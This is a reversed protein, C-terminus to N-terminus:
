RLGITDIGNVEVWSVVSDCRGTDVVLKRQSEIEFAGGDASVPADSIDAGSHVGVGAGLAGDHTRQADVPPIAAGRARQRGAGKDVIGVPRGARTSGDIGGPRWLIEIDFLDSAECNLTTHLEDSSPWRGSTARHDHEFRTRCFAADTSACSSPM